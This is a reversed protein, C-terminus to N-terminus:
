KEGGMNRALPAPSMGFKGGVVTAIFALFRITPMQTTVWTPFSDLVNQPAASLALVILGGCFFVQWLVGDRAFITMWNM